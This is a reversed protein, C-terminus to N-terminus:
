KLKLNYTKTINERFEEEINESYTNRIFEAREKSIYNSINWLINDQWGSYDYSPYGILIYSLDFRKHGYTILAFPVSVNSPVYEEGFDLFILNSQANSRRHVSSKPLKAKKDSKKIHFKGNENHYEIYSYGCKPITDERYNYPFTNLDFSDIQSTLIKDIYVPFAHGALMAARRPITLMENKMNKSMNCAVYISTAITEKAKDSFMLNFREKVDM